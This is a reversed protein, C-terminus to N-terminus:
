STRRHHLPPYVATPPRNLRRSTPCKSTSLTCANLPQHSTGQMHWHAPWQYTSLVTQSNYATCKIRCDGTGITNLPREVVTESCRPHDAHQKDGRTANIFISPLATEEEFQRESATAFNRTHKAPLLPYHPAKVQAKSSDTWPQLWHQEPIFMIQQNIPVDRLRRHKTYFSVRVQTNTAHSITLTQM